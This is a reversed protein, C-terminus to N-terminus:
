RGWVRTWENRLVAYMPDSWKKPVARKPLVRRVPLRWKSGPLKAGRQHFRLWPQSAVIRSGATRVQLRLSGAAGRLAMGKGNKLPKWRQGGPARGASAGEVALQYTAGGLERSVRAVFERGAVVGLQRVLVQLKSFDGRIAM